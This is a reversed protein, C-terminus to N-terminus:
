NALSKIKLSRANSLITEELATSTAKDLKQDTYSGDALKERSFVKVNLATPELAKSLIYINIKVQKNSTGEQNMWDSLIVGGASDAQTLPMFSIAELSSRWLYQNVALEAASGGGFSKGKFSSLINGDESFVGAGEEMDHPTPNPDAPTLKADCSAVLVLSLLSLIKFKM